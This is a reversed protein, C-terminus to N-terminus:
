VSGFSKLDMAVVDNFKKAIPLAVIPRPVPKKFKLCVECSDSVRKIESELKINNVKANRLLRILKDSTAHGFQRHLKTGIKRVDPDSVSLM